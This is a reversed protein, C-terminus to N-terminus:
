PTKGEMKELITQNGEAEDRAKIDFYSRLIDTTIPAAVESGEGGNFVFVTVVIEPDEYPAYATFWAHTPLNGRGDRPIDPDFFEATGTKGAVTM